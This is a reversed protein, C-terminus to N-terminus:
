LREERLYGLEQALQARGRSLRSAITNISCGLMEAAERYACGQIDCLIVAERYCPTVRTLAKQIREEIEIKHASEDPGPQENPIAEGRDLTGEEMQLPEDLSLHRAAKRDRIRNLALNGAIRYIWGAVSGTPKYRHLNQVVRVFTEQTLDEAASRNGTYRYLHNLIRVRYKSYLETLAQHDGQQARKMLLHDPNEERKSCGGAPHNEEGKEQRRLTSRRM